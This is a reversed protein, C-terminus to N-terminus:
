VAGRGVFASCNSWGFDGGGGGYVDCRVGRIYLEVRRAAIWVALAVVGPAGLLQLVHAELTDDVRSAHTALERFRRARFLLAHVHAGLRAGVGASFVRHVPPGVM